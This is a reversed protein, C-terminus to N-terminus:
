NIKYATHLTIIRGSSGVDLAKSTIDSFGAQELMLEFEKVGYWKVEVHDEESRILKDNEYLEYIYTHHDTQKRFDFDSSKKVKLQMNGRSASWREILQDHSPDLIDDFPIFIDILFKGGPELHNFICVLAKMAEEPTSIHQFSSGTIFITKYKGPLALDTISQIYLNSRLGAKDLKAQCQTIMAPALDVGDLVMGDKLFEILMRGTGCALELIPQGSCRLLDRFLEIDHLSGGSLEDYWDVWFGTYHDKAM